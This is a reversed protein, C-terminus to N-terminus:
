YRRQGQVHNHQAKCLTMHYYAKLQGESTNVVTLIM